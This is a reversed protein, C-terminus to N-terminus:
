NGTPLTQGAGPAVNGKYDFTSTKTSVRQTGKNVGDNIGTSSNFMYFAAAVLIIVIIVPLILKEM